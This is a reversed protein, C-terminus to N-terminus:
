SPRLTVQVLRRSVMMEVIMTTTMAEMAATNKKATSEMMPQTM